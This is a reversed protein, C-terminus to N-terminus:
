ARLRRHPGHPKKEFAAMLAEFYAKGGTERLFTTSFNAHM